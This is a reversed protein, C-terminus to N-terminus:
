CSLSKVFDPSNVLSYSTNRRRQGGGAQAKALALISGFSQMSAFPLPFLIWENRESAESLLFDLGVRVTQARSIWRRTASRGSRVQIPFIICFTFLRAIYM